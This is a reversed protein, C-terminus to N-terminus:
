YGLRKPIKIVRSSRSTRPAASVDNQIPIDNQSTAPPDNTTHQDPIIPDGSSNVEVPYIKKVPRVLHGLPTKVKVVRVHGDRGSYLEEIVALPWNLRKQHEPGVLVVEGVKFIKDSTGAKQVLQGLYEKRFRRRFQERLEQCYRERKVLKNRDLDDLDATGIEKVDQLFNSPTLPRLEDADNFIYTLPRNNVTAEAACLVTLLEEYTVSSKGLVRVLLIKVIRILREWWGSWWSCDASLSTVIELHIARYVACTFLVVWAKTRKRLILPGCLDIRTVEFTRAERVRDLPLHIPITSPSKTTFRKCTICKKIISRITQRASIIWYEERIMSMLMQVGAHSNKKHYELVLSQVIHHKSPLLIPYKFGFEDDRALIKTKVRILGIEDRVVSLGNIVDGTQSFSERQVQLSLTNKSDKLEAASLFKARNVSKAKCSRIFRLVWALIKVIASFKSYKEYWKSTDTSVSVNLVVTKKRIESSILAENPKIELRPWSYKPNKLWNPGEWWSNKLIQHPTCGRSPIDAPNLQSPVYSWQSEESLACIEKVRNGVFTGWQDNRKIWSLATTSDSWYHKEIEDLSLAEVVYKALREGLVCALLELHPITM